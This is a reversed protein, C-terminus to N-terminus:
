HVKGRSQHQMILLQQKQDLTLGETSFVAAEAHPSVQQEAVVEETIDDHEKAERVDTHQILTPGGEKHSAVLAGLFDVIKGADQMVVEYPIGIRITQDIEFDVKPVRDVTMEIFQPTHVSPNYRVSCIVILLSDTSQFDLWKVDDQPVGFVSYLAELVTPGIADVIEQTADIYAEDRKDFLGKVELTAEDLEVEDEDYDM